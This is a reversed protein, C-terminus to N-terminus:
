DHVSRERLLKLVECEVAAWEHQCFEYSNAHARTVCFDHDDVLTKTLNLTGVLLWNAVGGRPPPVDGAVPSMFNCPRPQIPVPSPSKLCAKEEPYTGLVGAHHPATPTSLPASTSAMCAGPILRSKLYRRLHVIEM